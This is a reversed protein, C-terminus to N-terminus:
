GSYIFGLGNDEDAMYSAAAEIVDRDAIGSAIAAAKGKTEILSHIAGMQQGTEM